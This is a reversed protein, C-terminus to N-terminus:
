SWAARCASVAVDCFERQIQGLAADQALLEADLERGLKEVVPAVKDAAETVAASAEPRPETADMMVKRAPDVFVPGVMTLSKELTGLVESVHREVAARRQAALHLLAEERGRSVVMEASQVMAGLQQREVGIQKLRTLVRVTEEKQRRVEAKLRDMRQANEMRAQQLAGLAERAEALTVPRAPRQAGLAAALDRVTKQIAELTARNDGLQRDVLLAQQQETQVQVSVSSMDIRLGNLVGQRQQYAARLSELQGEIGAVRGRWDDKGFLVPEAKKEAALAADAQAMEDSRARLEEELLKIGAEISQHRQWVEGAARLREAKAMELGAVAARMTQAAETAAVYDAIQNATATDVDIEKDHVAAAGLEGEYRAISTAIEDRARGLQIEEDAIGSLAARAQSLENSDAPPVSCLEGPLDHILPLTDPWSATPEAGVFGYLAGIAKRLFPLCTQYVQDLRAIYRKYDDAASDASALDPMPVGRVAKTTQEARDQVQRALPEFAAAKETRAAAARATEEATLRAAVARAVEPLKALDGLRLRQSVIENRAGSVLAQVRALNQNDDGQFSFRGAVEYMDTLGTLAEEDEPRFLEAFAQRKVPPEGLAAALPPSGVVALPEAFPSLAEKTVGHSRELNEWAAVLQKVVTLYFRVYSGLRTPDYPM